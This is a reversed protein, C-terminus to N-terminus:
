DSCPHRRGGSRRGTPRDTAGRSQQDGPFTGFPADLQWFRRASAWTIYSQSLRGKVPHVLFTEVNPQEATLALSAVKSLEARNANHIDNDPADRISSSFMSDTM